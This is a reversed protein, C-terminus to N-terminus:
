TEVRDGERDREGMDRDRHRVLDREMGRISAPYPPLTPTLSRLAASSSSSSSSSTLTLILIRILNIQGMRSYLKSICHTDERSGLM